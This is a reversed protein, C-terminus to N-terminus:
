ASRESSLGAERRSVARTNIEQVGYADGATGIRERLTPIPLADREAARLAAAIAELDHAM